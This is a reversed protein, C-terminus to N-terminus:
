IFLPQLQGLLTVEFRDANLSDKKGLKVKTFILNADAASLKKDLLGADTVFILFAEATVGAAKGKYQTYLKSLIKKVDAMEDKSVKSLKRGSGTTSM